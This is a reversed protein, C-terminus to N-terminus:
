NLRITKGSVRVEDRADLKLDADSELVIEGGSSLEAREEARLEVRRAELAITDAARLELRAHEVTLM